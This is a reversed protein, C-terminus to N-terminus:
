GLFIGTPDSAVEALLDRLHPVDQFGDCRALARESRGVALVM